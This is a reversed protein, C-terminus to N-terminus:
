KINKQLKFYKKMFTHMEALTMKDANVLEVSTDNFLHNDKLLNNLENKADTPGFIVVQQYHKIAESIDKYYISQLIKRETSHEGSLHNEQQNNEVRENWGSQIDRSVIMNNEIEMLFAHSHDMYIGLQRKTQMIQLKLQKSNLSM